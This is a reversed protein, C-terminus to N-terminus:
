PQKELIPWTDDNVDELATSLGKECWPNDVEALRPGDPVCQEYRFMARSLLHNVSWSFLPNEM